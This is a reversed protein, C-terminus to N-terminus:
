SKDEGGSGERRGLGVVQHCNIETHPREFDKPLTSKAWLELDLHGRGHLERGQVVVGFFEDGLVNFRRFVPSDDENLVSVVDISKSGLQVGEFVMGGKVLRGFICHVSVPSAGLLGHHHGCTPEPCSDVIGMDPKNYYKAEGTPFIGGSCILLKATCAPIAL